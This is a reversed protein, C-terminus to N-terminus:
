EPRPLGLSVRLAEDVRVMTEPSLSAMKEGIRIKELTLLQNLRVESKKPLVGDPVAVSVPYDRKGTRSTVPAVITTSSFDNGTDNQIILVPRMGEHGSGGSGPLVGWCIDGRRIGPRGPPGQRMAGGPLAPKIEQDGVM